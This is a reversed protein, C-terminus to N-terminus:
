LLRSQPPHPLGALDPPPKLTPSIHAPNPTTEKLIFWLPPSCNHQSGAEGQLPCCLPLSSHPYFSSILSVSLFPPFSSSLSLSLSLFLSSTSLDLSASASVSLFLRVDKPHPQGSGPFSGFTLFVWSANGPVPAPPLGTAAPSSALCPM